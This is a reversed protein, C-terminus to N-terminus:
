PLPEGYSHILSRYSAFAPKESYDDRLLGVADFVDTGDSDNDRLNFYRYDTVGLTGSLHHVADLTSSLDAVQQPETRGLNTAYGNETIWLDVARGLGAKPMYCDRELTLAEAIEDGASRGPIPAPPWVLGPYAQVGVYDLASRRRAPPGPRRGRRRRSRRLRGRGGRSARAAPRPTSSRIRSLRGWRTRGIGSRSRIPEARGLRGM